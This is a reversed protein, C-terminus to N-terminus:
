YKNQKNEISIITYQKEERLPSDWKKLELVMVLLLMTESVSTETRTSTTYYICM